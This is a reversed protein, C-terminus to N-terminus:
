YKSWADNGQALARIHNIEGAHYVDHQIITAILWRTEYEEGWNAKRPTLLEYDNEMAAVYGRFLAQGERLWDIMADKGSLAENRADFEHWSLKADGFAHNAYMFKCEGVHEAIQAITRVGGPPLWQWADDSASVLNVLLSHESRGFAEDMLYLIQEIGSRPM